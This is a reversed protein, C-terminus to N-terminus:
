SALGAVPIEGGYSASLLEDPLRDDFDDAVWVNGRDVGLPRLGQSAQSGGARLGDDSSQEIAKVNV